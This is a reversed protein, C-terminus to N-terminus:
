KGICFRGFILGLIEDTVIQGSIQGLHNLAERLELAIFEVAPSPSELQEVAATVHQQAASLAEQQRVTLALTQQSVGAEDTHLMQTLRSKLEELNERQLASVYVVDTPQAGDKLSFAATIPDSFSDRAGAVDIKNAAVLIPVRPKLSQLLQAQEQFDDTSADVVFLVLDATTTKQQTLEQTAAALIDDVDGLGATDMLLCEAGNLQLPATLVDRTTGALISTIAREYGLLANILTSKGANARGAVAVQPLQELREWRVSEKITANLRGAIEQLQAQMQQPHIVEVDEDSFDIDVEALALLEALQECLERCLMHLQGGSLRRAAILERDSRAHILQGVAEATSLDMRGNLFARATFEGPQAATAGDALFARLTMQVLTPSGPLHIEVLDEGTYSRPAQFLLCQVPVECNDAVRLRGRLLRCYSPEAPTTRDDSTFRDELLAMAQPGSLRVIARAGVGAASSLAVITDDSGYMPRIISCIARCHLRVRSGTLFNSCILFDSM